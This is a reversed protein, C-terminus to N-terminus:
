SLPFIVVGGFLVQVFPKGQVISRNAATNPLDFVLEEQGGVSSLEELIHDIQANTFNTWGSGTWYQFLWGM